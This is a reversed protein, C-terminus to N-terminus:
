EDLIEQTNVAKVIKFTGTRKRLKKLADRADDFNSHSSIFYWEQKKVVRYLSFLIVRKTTITDFEFIM